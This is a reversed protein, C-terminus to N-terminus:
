TSQIHKRFLEDLISIDGTRPAVADAEGKGWELTRTIWQQLQPVPKIVAREDAWRKQELLANVAMQWDSDGVITRLKPFEMPPVEEKELIWLMALLPRLAYFYKKLRVETEQLDATFTNHAMSLYHHCAARPSFFQPMLTKLEEWLSTGSRYVVPSQLWEYLPANSKFFLQLAKRLDWGGIDLVENVPLGIVDKKEILSLYASAPRAYIFRVDYDSDTSAFGWARSGSECAYLISVGHEQELKELRELIEQKM